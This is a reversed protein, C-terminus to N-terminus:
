RVQMDKKDEWVELSRGNKWAEWPARIFMYWLLMFINRKGQM